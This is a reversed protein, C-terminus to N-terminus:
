IFIRGYSSKFTKRVCMFPRLVDCLCKIVEALVFFYTFNKHYNKSLNIKLSKPFGATQPILILPPNLSGGSHILTKLCNNLELM